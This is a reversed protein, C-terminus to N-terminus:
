HRTAAAVDGADAAPFLARAEDPAFVYRRACFECVVEVQGDAALAEEIEVRGAVRLAGEVRRRSCGCAFRPAVPAFVRLADDPFLAALGADGRAAAAVAGERAEGLARSVRAWTADDAAQSSPMRQLLVGAVERGSAVLALESAVQESTALYHEIMMAVSAAELTVIGQYMPGGERPDLTISLRADGAGGALAGLTAEDGLARVRAEDWQAMARLAPGANCEVVLLRVPGRGALQVILSGDFKLAAALLAAAACLEALVRALAPPYPHAALIATTTAALRVRVGRVAAGEVVFRSLSDAADSGTRAARDGQVM